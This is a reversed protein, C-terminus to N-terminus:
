RGLLESELQTAKPFLINNELHIHQHLDQQFERLKSYFVQYSMCADLPPTFQESLKQISEMARGASIHEAEMMRIPNAITGFPPPTLSTNGKKAQIMEKIYPFLIMEEKPMHMTLEEIVEQVLQEIERLEPHHDGHVRSVKHSLEELFPIAETVYRHHNNVIYDALFDLDWQDFNHVSNTPKSDVLNLEQELLASDIGKRICAEEVTVKGGCCYDIGFKKFVEAKRWDRAVLEGISPAQSSAINTTEM